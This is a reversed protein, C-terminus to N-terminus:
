TISLENSWIIDAFILFSISFEPFVFVSIALANPTELGVTVCYQVPRMCGVRAVRALSHLYKSQEASSM